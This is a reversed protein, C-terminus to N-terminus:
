ISQNKPILIIEYIIKGNEMKEDIPPIIDQSTFSICSMFICKLIQKNERIDDQQSFIELSDHSNSPILSSSLLPTFPNSRLVVHFGRLM